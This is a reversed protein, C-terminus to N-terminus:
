GWTVGHTESMCVAIQDKNFTLESGDNMDVILKGNFLDWEKYGVKRHKEDTVLAYINNSIWEDVEFMAIVKGLTLLKNM